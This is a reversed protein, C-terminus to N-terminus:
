LLFCQLVFYYNFVLQFYRQWANLSYSLKKDVTEGNSSMLAAFGDAVKEQFKYDSVSLQNNSIMRVDLTDREM